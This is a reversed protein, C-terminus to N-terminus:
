RFDEPVDINLLAKFIGAPFGSFESELESVKQNYSSHSILDSYNSLNAYLRNLEKEDEKDMSKTELLGILQNNSRDLQMLAEYKESAGKAEQLVAIAENVTKIEDSSSNIYKIAFKNALENSFEMKKNLAKQISFDDGMGEDVLFFDNLADVKQNMDSGAQIFTSSVVMLIMCLIAVSRKKFVEM